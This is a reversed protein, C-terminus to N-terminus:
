ARKIGVAHELATVREPLDRYRDDVAATRTRYSEEVSQINRLTDANIDIRLQAMALNL